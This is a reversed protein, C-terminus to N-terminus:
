KLGGKLQKVVTRSKEEAILIRLVLDLDPKTDLHEQFVKRIASTSSCGHILATALM